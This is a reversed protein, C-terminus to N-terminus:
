NTMAEIEYKTPEAGYIAKFVAAAARDEAQSARKMPRGDNLRHTVEVSCAILGHILAVVDHRDIDHKTRDLENM